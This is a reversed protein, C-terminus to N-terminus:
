LPRITDTGYEINHKELRYGIGHVTKIETVPNINEPNSYKQNNDRLKKRLKQIHVDVTNSTTVSKYDWVHDLLESRSITREKNRMLYELLNYEKKTLDLHNKRHYAKMKRPDIRLSGYRLNPLAKVKPRRLLAQIRALLEQTPFPFTMCDDAGSNLIEIKDKWSGKNNIGMIYATTFKDRIFSCIDPSLCKELNTDIIAVDFALQRVFSKLSKRSEIVQTVYGYSSLTREIISSITPSDEIILINM